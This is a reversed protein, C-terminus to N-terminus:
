KVMELYIVALDYECVEAEKLQDVTIGNSHMIDVAVSPMDHTRALTGLIIGAGQYFAKEERTM